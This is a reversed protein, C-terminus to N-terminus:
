KVGGVAPRRSARLYEDLDDTSVRVLKGLKYIPLRRDSVLRRAFRESVGLYLAAGAVDVLRPTSPTASM